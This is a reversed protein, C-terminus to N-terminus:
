NENSSLSDMEKKIIEELELMSAFQDPYKDKLMSESLKKVILPNEKIRCINNLFTNEAIKLAADFLPEHQRSPNCISTLVIFLWFNIYKSAFLSLQEDGIESLLSLIFSAANANRRQDDNTYNLSIGNYSKVTTRGLIYDTSVGYYECAKIIFELKPERVGNEYHSLLAQSIGLDDAAKKQSLNNERRLNNLIHAFGPTM